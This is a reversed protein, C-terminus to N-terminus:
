LTFLSNIFKLRDTTGEINESGFNQTEFTIQERWIGLDWFVNRSNSYDLIQNRFYQLSSNKLQAIAYKNLKNRHETENM